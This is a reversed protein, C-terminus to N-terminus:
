SVAFFPAHNSTFSPPDRLIIQRVDHHRFFEKELFRRVSKRDWGRPHVFNRYLSLDGDYFDMTTLHEPQEGPTFPLNFVAANIFDISESHEAVFSFTRRASEETEAPTGFLLYVYTAIGAEKLNNLALSATRLEMGKGLEDLVRQDGSEIGLQLMRCGSERLGRCFDRKGLHDTIRAFGYWPIGPPRRILAQFLSPRVANDLFHILVPNVRAAARSLDELVNEDPVPQYPQGEANEPCFSCKMWYCGRSASYPLIRGPAFYDGLPFESYDPATGAPPQGPKGCLRLMAKEGPGAILSDAVARLPGLDRSRRMWSTVLGGGFVVGIGPYRRRVYGAMAFATLAQTLYNLSFGVLRIGNGNIERDLRRSFFSYFPNREPEAAARLLDRSRLPSLEKDRYNALEAQAEPSSAIELVRNLDSVARRYEAPKRYGDPSKLLALNKRVLRRARRTWPDEGPCVPEAGKEFLFSIGELNADLVRVPVDAAKLVSSLLAIGAPPECPKAVPPHVFLIM